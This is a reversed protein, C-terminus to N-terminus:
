PMVHGCINIYHISNKLVNMIITWLIENCLIVILSDFNLVLQKWPFTQPKLKQMNHNWIYKQTCNILHICIWCLLVYGDRTFVDMNWLHLGWQKIVSHLVANLIESIQYIKDQINNQKELWRMCLDESWTHQAIYVWSFGLQHLTQGTGPVALTLVPKSSTISTDVSQSALYWDTLVSHNKM